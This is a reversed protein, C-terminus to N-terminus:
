GLHSLPINKSGGGEGPIWSSVRASTPFRISRRTKKRSYSAYFSQIAVSSATNELQVIKCKKQFHTHGHWTLDENLESTVHWVMNRRSRCIALETPDSYNKKYRHEICTWQHKHIVLSWMFNGLSWPWAHGRKILATKPVDKLSNLDSKTMIICENPAKSWWFWKNSCFPHWTRALEADKIVCWIHGTMHWPWVHDDSTVSRPHGKTVKM